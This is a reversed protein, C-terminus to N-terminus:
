VACRPLDATDDRRHGGRVGGRARGVGGRGRGPHGPSQEGDHRADPELDHRHHDEGARHDDVEDHALRLAEADAEERGGEEEGEGPEQAPGRAGQPLAAPAAPRGDGAPLDELPQDGDRQQGTPGQHHREAPHQHERQGGADQDAEHRAADDLVREASGTGAAVPRAVQVCVAEGSRVLAGRGPRPPGPDAVDAVPTGLVEDAGREGPALVVGTRRGRLEALVGRHAMLAGQTTASAVVRLGEQELAALREAEVPCTQAVADLDDVVVTGSGPSLSEVLGRVAASALGATPATGADERLTRDRSVVAALRGRRALARTVTRLTTTRGSGHPGVVLAGEGVDLSVPVAADGGLGVTVATGEDTAAADPPGTGLTRRTGPPGGGLHAPTVDAPLPLVRVPTGAVAADSVRADRSPAVPEPSLVQCALPTGQTLWVARGPPGGTGAFPAPAGLMVDTHQDTGLLVLRPGVRAAVGGVTAGDATVAFAARGASLATVLPDWPDTGALAARLAAVDEVLVLPAPGDDAGSPAPAALLQLLRRARRPDDAGALTGFGPRDALPAFRHQAAAPALVHVARGRELAARALTVLATTRGSRAPGLVALHGDAPRWCAATRRQRDPDDALALPLHDHGAPADSPLDAVTVRAPLAPLWPAPGPRHGGAAAAERLVTVAAAVTDADDPRGPATPAAATGAPPTPHTGPVRRVASTSEGGPAGAHACQLAVPPASGIRLVARGPEGVRIAAAGPHEVVDRSDAPDVVRLALRASVNARLDAGVAGAPRQTALVLHVGLSRGQAAIRLLGPLFDPLDDALARFEDIVVLLRPLAGRPLDHSAAVGHDALVRERRHLEARLGVLARGALGAELDTVQGVVHPLEACRGFSAGGKFDVLTVALDAPSRTAALGLVLSQLLESKGAGTTGAVLLHPGDTDLDLDVTRGAADRGLPVRWTDARAWRDAPDDLDVLDALAVSSPLRPDTPDTGDGEPATAAQASPGTAPRRLHRLGALRRATREAWATSVGTAPALSDSGDPATRLVRGDPGITWTTRCWAPAPVPGGPGDDPLCLVVVGGHRATRDATALDDATPADAVLVGPTGDAAPAPDPALWRCWRWAGRGTGVARVPAGTTALDVVVSRAVSRVSAAPGRLCLAGDPLMTGPTPPPVPTGATAREALARAARRWAGDSAQHAAAIRAATRGPAAGVDAPVDPGVTRPARRRRRVAAVFQPVLAVVAVLSFLAYLPQRLTVALVVSGLVPVLGTALMAPGVTPATDTPAAGLALWVEVDGSRHLAYRVGDLDLEHHSPWRRPWWGLGRRRRVGPHGLTAPRRRGPWPLGPRPLGPWPLGPRPLGPWWPGARGPATGGTPPVPSLLRVRVGGRAGATVRVRHRGQALTLPAGPALPRPEGAALGTTAAVCWPSRLVAVDAAGDTPDGAAPRGLARGGSRAPRLVTGPLLPRSGVRADDGVPRDDALLDARLLEPRRVLDALPARLDGLRVDDPLEVDEDPHLTLRVPM